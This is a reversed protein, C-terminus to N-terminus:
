VKICQQGLTGGGEIGYRCWAELKIRQGPKLKALLIDDHVPRISGETLDMAVTTMHTRPFHLEM